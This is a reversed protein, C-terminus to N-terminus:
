KGGYGKYLVEGLERSEWTDTENEVTARFGGDIMSADLKFGQGDIELLGQVRTPGNSRGVIHQHKLDGIAHIIEDQGSLDVKRPKPYEIHLLIRTSPGVQPFEAPIRSSQARYLLVLNIGFYLLGAVMAILVCKKFLSLVTIGAKKM